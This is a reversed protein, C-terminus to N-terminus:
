GPACPTSIKESVPECTLKVTDVEVNPLTVQEGPHSDTTAGVFKGALPPVAVVIKVVGAIRVTLTSGLPMGGPTQGPAITTVGTLAEPALPADPAVPADPALPADPAVPADPALPADPAVPADPALPADPAAPTEPAAGAGSYM